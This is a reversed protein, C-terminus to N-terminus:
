IHKNESWMERWLPRNTVVFLHKKAAQTYLVWGITFIELNKLAPMLFALRSFNRIIERSKAFIGDWFTIGSFAPAQGCHGTAAPQSTLLTFAETASIHGKTLFWFWCFSLFSSLSIYWDLKTLDTSAHWRDKDKNKYLEEEAPTDTIFPLHDLYITNRRRTLAQRSTKMRGVGERCERLIWGVNERTVSERYEFENECCDQLIWGVSEREYCEGSNSSMRAASKCYRESVRWFEDM